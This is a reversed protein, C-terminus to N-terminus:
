VQEGLEIGNCIVLGDVAQQAIQLLDHRFMGFRVIGM